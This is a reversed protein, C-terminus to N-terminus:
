EIIERWHTVKQHMITDSCYITYFSEEGNSARWGMFTYSETKLLVVHYYEPLKEEVPIWRVKEQWQQNMWEAGARFDMDADFHLQKSFAMMYHNKSNELSAEDITKM